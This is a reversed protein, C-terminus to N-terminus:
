CQYYTCGEDWPLGGITDEHNVEELPLLSTKTYPKYSVISM